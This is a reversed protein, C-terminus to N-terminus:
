YKVKRKKNREIRAAKVAEDVSQQYCGPMPGIPQRVGSGGTVFMPYAFDSPDLRTEALLTRVAATSRNRRLRAFNLPIDMNM